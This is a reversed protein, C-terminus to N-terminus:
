SVSLEGVLKVSVTSVGFKVSQVTPPEAYRWLINSPAQILSEISEDMGAFMRDGLTFGLYTGVNNFHELIERTTGSFQRLEVADGINKFTFEVTYNTQKNGFQRKFIAGSLSTYTKTPYDGLKFSRTTPRMPPFKFTM